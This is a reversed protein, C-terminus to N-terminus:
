HTVDHSCTRKPCSPEERPHTDALEPRAAAVDASLRAMGQAIFATDSSCNFILGGRGMWHQAVEFSGTFLGFPVGRDLCRDLVGQISSTVAPNERDHMYGLSIALDAPGIMIGNLGPTSLIGDLNTIADATEVQTIVVANDNADRAYAGVNEYSRAARRSGWSRTGEPPYKAAAVARRADDATNVMPVIVGTAGADLIQGILDPDNRLPRVLASVAAPQLAILIRQLTEITIAVHQMDILLFDLSVDRLTETVSEDQVVHACGVVPRGQQLSTLLPNTLM